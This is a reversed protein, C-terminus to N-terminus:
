PRVRTFDDREVESQLLVRLAGAVVDASLGHEAEDCAEYRRLEARAAEFSADAVTDCFVLEGVDDTTLAHLLRDVAESLRDGAETRQLQAMGREVDIVRQIRM